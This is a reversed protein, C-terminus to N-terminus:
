GEKQDAARNLQDVLKLLLEARQRLVEALARAATPTADRDGVKYRPFSTTHYGAEESLRRESVATKELARAIIRNLRKMAVFRVGGRRALLSNGFM